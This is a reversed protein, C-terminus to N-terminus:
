RFTQPQQLCLLIHIHCVHRLGSIHAPIQMNNSFQIWIHVFHKTIMFISLIHRTRNRRNM